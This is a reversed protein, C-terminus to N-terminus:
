EWVHMVKENSLPHNGGNNTDYKSFGFTSYLSKTQSCSEASVYHLMLFPIRRCSMGQRDRLGFFPLQHRNDPYVLVRGHMESHRDFLNHVALMPYKGHFLLDNPLLM